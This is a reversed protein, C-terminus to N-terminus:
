RERALWRLALERELDDGDAHGLDRQCERLLHQAEPSCRALPDAQLAAALEDGSMAELEARTM